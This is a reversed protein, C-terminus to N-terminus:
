IMNHSKVQLMYKSQNLTPDINIRELQPRSGQNEFSGAQVKRPLRFDRNAYDVTALRTKASEASTMPMNRDLEMTVDTPLTFNRNHTIPANVNFSHMSEMTQTPTGEYYQMTAVGTRSLPADTSYQLLEQVESPTGNYDALRQNSPKSLNTYIDYTTQSHIEKTPELNVQVTDDRASTNATISYMSNNKIVNKIDYPATFPTRIIFTASPKVPFNMIEDKVQNSPTFNCKMNKSFDPMSPNTYAYTWDRPQRSLPILNDLKIAPPRFAGERVVRYPYYAQKNTGVITTAQATNGYNSYNVKVMPDVGRNYVSIAGGIRDCSADIEDTILQTQGVKDIRRTWRAKPPDKLIYGMKEVSPLTLRDLKPYQIM